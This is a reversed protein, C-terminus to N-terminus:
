LTSFHDFLGCPKLWLHTITEIRAVDPGRSAWDLLSQLKAEEGEAIITVSGNDENKVYGNIGLNQAVQQTAARFSIGQVRGSVHIELRHM